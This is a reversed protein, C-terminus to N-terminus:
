VHYMDNMRQPLYIISSLLLIVSVCPRIGDDIYYSILSVLRYFAIGLILKSLIMHYPTINPFLESGQNPIIFPTMISLFLLVRNQALFNFLNNLQDLM